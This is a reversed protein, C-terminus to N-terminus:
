SMMMMLTTWHIAEHQPATRVAALEGGSTGVQDGDEEQCEMAVGDGKLEVYLLEEYSEGAVGKVFGAFYFKRM